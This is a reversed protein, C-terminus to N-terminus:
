WLTVCGDTFLLLETRNIADISKVVVSSVLRKRILIIPAKLIVFTQYSTRNKRYSLEQTEGDCWAM